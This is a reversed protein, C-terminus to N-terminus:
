APAGPLLLAPLVLAHREVQAVAVLLVLEGPVLHRQRAPVELQGVDGPVDVDHPRDLVVDCGPGGGVRRRLEQRAVHAEDQGGRPVDGADDVRRVGLPLVPRVLLKWGVRPFPQRSGGRQFPRPPLVPGGPYGLSAALTALGRGHPARRVGGDGVCGPLVDMALPTLPPPLPLRAPALACLSRSESTLSGPRSRTPTTAHTSL